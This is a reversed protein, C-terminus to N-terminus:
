EYVDNSVHVTTKVQRIMPLTEVLTKASEESESDPKGPGVCVCVCVVWTNQTDEPLVNTTCCFESNSETKNACM